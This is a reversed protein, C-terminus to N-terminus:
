LAPRRRHWDTAQEYTHGIRLVTAEDFRRGVIQLSLPLGTTSFGCPVALAPVGALSAPTTYARRTFFRGAVEAKGTIPAAAQVIPPAPRPATPSLLADRQELAGLVQERILVRARQAQHYVAAPLLAATLLRRRTARDYDGPRQRLWPLHWGAGESDALAMFVAGALPVAPLSVEEVRAGLKELLRAAQAVAERVEPDTEGGTLESVVGVTLGRLGAGLLARYDPVARSSTLPDRPDRGAMLALLLASDQVTRSLPGAADM